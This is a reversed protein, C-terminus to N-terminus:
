RVSTVDVLVRTGPVVSRIEAPSNAQVTLEAGQTDKLSVLGRQADVRTVSAVTQDGSASPVAALTSSDLVTMRIGRVATGTVKTGAKLKDLNPVDTGVQFAESGGQANVVTVARTSMDVSQVKGGVQVSTTGLITTAFAGSVVLTSAAAVLAKKLYKTSTSKM